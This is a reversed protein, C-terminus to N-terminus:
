LDDYLWHNLEPAQQQELGLYRTMQERSDSAPEDPTGLQLGTFLVILVIGVSLVYRRFLQWVLHELDAQVGGDATRRQHFRRIADDAPQEERMEAFLGPMGEGSQRMMWQHDKWLQPDQAVAEKELRSLEEQSLLGDQADILRQRLREIAPNLKM